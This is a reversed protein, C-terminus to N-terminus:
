DSHDGNPSAKRSPLPPGGMLRLFRPFLAVACGKGLVHEIWWACREELCKGQTELEEKPFPRVMILIPCYKM